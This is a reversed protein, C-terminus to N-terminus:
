RFASTFSISSCCCRFTARVKSMGVVLLRIPRPGGARGFAAVLGLLSGIALALVAIGIGLLLGKLLPDFNDSFRAGTSSIYTRVPQSFEIGYL